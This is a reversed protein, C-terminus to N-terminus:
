CKNMWRFTISVYRLIVRDERWWLCFPFFCLWGIDRPCGTSVGFWGHGGCVFLLVYVTWALLASSSVRGLLALQFWFAVLAKCVCGQGGNGPLVLSPWWPRRLSSLFNAFFPLIGAPPSTLSMVTCLFGICGGLPTGLFSIIHSWWLVICLLWRLSAGYGFAFFDGLCWTLTALGRLGQWGLDARLESWWM